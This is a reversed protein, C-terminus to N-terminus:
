AATSSSSGERIQMSYPFLVTVVGGCETWTLTEKIPTIDIAFLSADTALYEGSYVSVTLPMYRRIVAFAEGDVSALVAVCGLIEHSIAVVDGESVRGYPSFRATKARDLPLGSGFENVIWQRWGGKVPAGKELGPQLGFSCKSRLAELHHCTVERLMSKDFHAGSCNHHDGLYRKVM